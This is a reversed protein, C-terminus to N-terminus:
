PKKQTVRGGAPYTTWSPRQMMLIREPEWAAFHAGYTKQDGYPMYPREVRHYAEVLEHFAIAQKTVELSKTDWDVYKATPNVTIAADVDAPPYLEAPKAGRFDWREDYQNDLNQVGKDFVKEEYTYTNDSTVM